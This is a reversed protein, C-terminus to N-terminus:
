FGNNWLSVADYKTDAVTMAGCHECWVAWDKGDNFKRKFCKPKNGCSCYNLLGNEMYKEEVAKSDVLCHSEIIDFINDYAALMGQWYVGSYSDYEKASNYRSEAYEIRRKIYENLDNLKM